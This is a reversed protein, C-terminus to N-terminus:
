GYTPTSTEFASAFLRQGVCGCIKGKGTVLMISILFFIVVRINCFPFLAARFNGKATIAAPKAPAILAPATVRV